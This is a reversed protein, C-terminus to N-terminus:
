PILDLQPLLTAIDIGGLKIICCFIKETQYKANVFDIDAQLTVLDLEAGYVALYDLAILRKMLTENYISAGTITETNLNCYIDPTIICNTQAYVVALYADYLPATLRVYSQMKSSTIQIAECSAIDVGSCPTCGCECGCLVDFVDQILSTELSLYHNIDEIATEMAANTLTLRYVGDLALVIEAKQAPTITGTSVETYNICDTIRSLVYTIDTGEDNTVYYKDQEKAYTYLVAM